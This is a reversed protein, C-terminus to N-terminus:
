APRRQSSFRDRRSSSSGGVRSDLREGNFRIEIMAVANKLCREDPDRVIFGERRYWDLLGGNASVDGSVISGHIRAAGNNKAFNVMERLLRKGVGIKRFNGRKEFPLFPTKSIPLDDYVELDSILFERNDQWLGQIRGVRRTKRWTAFFFIVEGGAAAELTIDAPDPNILTIFAM